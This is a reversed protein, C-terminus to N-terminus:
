FNRKELKSHIRLALFSASYPTFQKPIFQASKPWSINLGNILRLQKSQQKGTFSEQKELSTAFSLTLSIYAAKLLRSPPSKELHISKLINLLNGNQSLFEFLSLMSISSDLYSNFRQVLPYKFRHATFSTAWKNFLIYTKIFLFSLNIYIIDCDSQSNRKYLRDLWNSLDCCFLM